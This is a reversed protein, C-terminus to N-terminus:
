PRVMVWQDRPREAIPTWCAIDDPNWPRSDDWIYFFWHKNLEPSSGDTMSERCRRETTKRLSHRSMARVFGWPILITTQPADRLEAATMSSEVWCRVYPRPRSHEARWDDPEILPPSNPKFRPTRDWASM